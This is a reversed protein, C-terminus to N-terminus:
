KAIGDQKQTDDNLAKARYLGYTLMKQILGKLLFVEEITLENENFFKRIDVLNFETFLYNSILSSVETKIAEACKRDETTTRADMWILFAYVGSCQLVGISKNIMGVIGSKKVEELQAVIQIGSKACIHEYNMLDSM